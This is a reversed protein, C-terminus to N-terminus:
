GLLERHAAEGALSSADAPRAFIMEAPVACLAAYDAASIGRRPSYPSVFAEAAAIRDALLTMIRREPRLFYAANQTRLVPATPRGTSVSLVMAEILTQLLDKPRLTSAPDAPNDERGGRSKYELAILGTDIEIVADPQAFLSGMSFTKRDAERYLIEGDPLFPLLRRVPDSQSSVAEPPFFVAEVGIGLMDVHATTLGRRMAFPLTQLFHWPPTSRVFRPPVPQEAQAAPEPAPEAPRVPEQSAPRGSPVPPMVEGAPSEPERIRETLLQREQTEELPDWDPEPLGPEVRDEPAAEGYDAEIRRLGINEPRRSRARFALLLVALLLVLVLAVGALFLSERPLGLVTQLFAEPTM